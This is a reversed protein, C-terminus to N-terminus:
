AEFRGKQRKEGQADPPNTLKAPKFLEFGFRKGVISNLQKRVDNIEREVEDHRETAHKLADPADVGCFHRFIFLPDLLACLAGRLWREFVDSYFSATM